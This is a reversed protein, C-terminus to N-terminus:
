ANAVQKLSAFEAALEAEDRERAHDRALHLATQILWDRRTGALHLDEPVRQGDSVYALPLRARLVLSLIPGLTTAEDIKTVVLAKPAAARFATMTELLTGADTAASLALVSRVHHGSARLTTFQNALRVDRQSMGATDILVLKKHRLGDLVQGLERANSAVQMPAGLIRAFTLLQERAGIRYSDTSVLGLGNLGHRLVFRAAIKAITTTKGVGTPGVVAFVGGMDILERRALPLCEALLRLPVRWADRAGGTQPLREVFKRAVASDVGLRAFERLVRARVPDRRNLDNWALSALQVELLRRLDKLEAALAPASAEDSEAAVPRLQARSAPRAPAPTPSGAAPPPEPGAGALTRVIREYESPAGTDDPGAAARSPSATMSRPENAARSRAEESVRVDEGPEDDPEDDPGAAHEDGPGLSEGVRSFLSDDYDIAAIVEVGGEVSRTSLMVADAGLGSRVARLAERMDAAVFRKINM